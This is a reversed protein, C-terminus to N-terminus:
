FPRGGNVLITQEDVAMDLTNSESYKYTSASAMVAGADERVEIVFQFKGDAGSGKPSGARETEVMYQLVEGPNVVAWNMYPASPPLYSSALGCVPLARMFIGSVGSKIRVNQIQSSINSVLINIGRTPSLGGACTNTFASTFTVSRSAFAGFSLLLLPALVLKKM